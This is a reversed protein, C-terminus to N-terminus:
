PPVHRVLHEPAARTSAASLIAAPHSSCHAPSAWEKTDLISDLADLRLLPPSIREKTSSCADGANSRRPDGGREGYERQDVTDSTPATGASALSNDGTADDHGGDHDRASIPDFERGTDPGPDKTEGGAVSLEDLTTMCSRGDIESTSRGDTSGAPIAASEPGHEHERQNEHYHKHKHQNNLTDEEKDEGHSFLLWWPLRRRNARPLVHSTDADRNEHQLDREDTRPYSSSVEPEHTLPEGVGPAPAKSSRPYAKHCRDRSGQEIKKGDESPTRLVEALHQALGREVFGIKVVPTELMGQLLLRPAEHLVLCSIQDQRGGVGEGGGCIPATVSCFGQYWQDIAVSAKEGGIVTTDEGGAKEKMGNGFVRELLICAACRAEACSLSREQGEAQTEAATSSGDVGPRCAAALLARIVDENSAWMAAHDLSASQVDRVNLVSQPPPLQRPNDTQRRPTAMGITPVGGADDPSELRARQGTRSQTQWSEHESGMDEGIGPVVQSGGARYAHGKRWRSWIRSAFSPGTGNSFALRVRNNSNPDPQKFHMKRDPHVFFQKGESIPNM